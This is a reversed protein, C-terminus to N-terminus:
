IQEKDIIPLIISLIKEVNYMGKRYYISLIKKKCNKSKIFRYTCKIIFLFLNHLYM